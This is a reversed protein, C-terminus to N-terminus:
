RKEERDFQPVEISCYETNLVLDDVGAGGISITEAGKALYRAWFTLDDDVNKNRDFKFRRTSRSTQFSPPLPKVGDMGTFVYTPKLQIFWGGQVQVAAYNIGENEHEIREGIMRRKVVDRKVGRRLRSDYTATQRDGEQLSFYARKRKGEVVMPWGRLFFEFHKHILWVLLRRDPGGAVSDFGAARVKRLDGIRDAFDPYNDWNAFSLLAGDYEIFLPLAATDDDPSFLRGGEDKTPRIPLSWLHAPTLGFPLLNTVYLDTKSLRRAVSSRGSAVQRPQCLAVFLARNGDEVSCEAMGGAGQMLDEVDALGTGAKDMYGLGSFIDAISPNRQESEYRVPRFRGYEGVGVKRRVSPPLGGPSWFGIREGRLVSIRSLENCSYDRHVLLNVVVERLALAPYAPQEESRIEGKLRVIPNITPDALTETIRHFQSILNGDIVVQKKEDIILTVRSYPFKEHVSRGFLLYCGITPRDVGDVQRVLRLESLLDLYSHRNPVPQKLRKCYEVLTNLMLDGDLDELSIDSRTTTEFDEGFSSVPLRVDAHGQWAEGELDRDLDGMLEDFGDIEILRFASGVRSQLEQVNSHLDSGKRICWYIGHRYNMSEELGGELLHRMVSNEAGRYGVVILPSDNLLPRVRRVLDDDLRETESALNKDRYFEIAGHLYVIQCRNFIQFAVLDDKTRNTETVHQIQPRERRLADVILSDFNTTLVTWCLRRKMLRALAAYGESISNRPQVMKMLFTRRFDPPTLLHEVALPFNEAFRSPDDIFWSQQRLWPLWDTQTLSCKEADMGRVSRAYGAQAIERVAKDALPVGSRYSAGAGLLFIPRRERNARLLFTLERQSALASQTLSM